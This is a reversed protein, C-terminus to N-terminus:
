DESTDEISEILDLEGEIEVRVVIPAGDLMGLNADSAELAARVKLEAEAQTDAMVRISALLTAQFTFETMTLEM